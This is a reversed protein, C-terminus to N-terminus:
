AAVGRARDVLQQRLEAARLVYSYPGVPTKAHQSSPIFGKLKVNVRTLNGGPSLWERAFEQTVPDLFMKMGERRFQDYQVAYRAKKDLESNKEVGAALRMGKLVEEAGKWDDAVHDFRGRFIAGTEVLGKYIALGQALGEYRTSEVDHSRVINSLENVISPSGNVMQERPKTRFDDFIYVLRDNLAPDESVIKVADIQITPYGNDYFIAPNTKSVAKLRTKEPVIRFDYIGAPLMFPENVPDRYDDTSSVDQEDVLDDPIQFSM